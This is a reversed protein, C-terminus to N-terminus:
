ENLEIVAFIARHDSAVPEDLVQANVLKWRDKPRVLIYDIQRMPKTVPVTPIVEPNTRMWLKGFEKLTRSGPVANFDGALIAPVNDRNGILHNIFKASALREQDPRRHDLHTVQFLITDKASTRILSELMGRQEGSNVNPLHHNKHHTIPFRSLIANGYKGGQFEINAGFASNMKTLRALEAVQDVKRTRKTNQDVEQLAVLDPNVSLIVRAIRPVDLKGDVGEAHHINYCLVRLRVPESRPDSFIVQKKARNIGVLGGSVPDNALGQGTFPVAHQGLYELESGEKAIRDLHPTPAVDKLRGGYASIAEYSHDDSFTFVINPRQKSFLYGTTGFLQFTMALCVFLAQKM